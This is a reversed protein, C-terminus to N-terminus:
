MGKRDKLCNSIVNRLLDVVVFRMVYGLVPQTRM